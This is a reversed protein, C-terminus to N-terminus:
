ENVERYLIQCLNQAPDGGAVAVTVVTNGETLLGVSPLAHQVYGICATAPLTPIRLTVDVGPDPPITFQLNVETTTNEAILRYVHTAALLLYHRGAVAPLLVGTGGTVFKIASVTM